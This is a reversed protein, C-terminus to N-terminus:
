RTHPQVGIRTGTAKSHGKTIPTGDLDNIQYESDFRANNRGTMTIEAEFTITAYADGDGGLLFAVDTDSYSCRGTQKWQGHAATTKDNPSTFSVTGASPGGHYSALFVEQTRDDVVKWSGTLPGCSSQAETTQATASGTLVTTSVIAAVGAFVGIRTCMNKRM